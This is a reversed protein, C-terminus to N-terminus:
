QNRGQRAFRTPGGARLLRTRVTASLAAENTNNHSNRGTSVATYPSKPSIAEISARHTSAMM